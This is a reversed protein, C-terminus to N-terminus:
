RRRDSALREDIVVRIQEAIKPLEREIRLLDDDRIVALRMPSGAVVSSTRRRDKTHLGIEGFFDGPWLEAIHEGHQSVSATGEEIVFLLRAHDGEHALEHGTDVEIEEILPALRKRERRSLREFLPLEHLRAEDM